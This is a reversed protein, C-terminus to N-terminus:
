EMNSSSLKILFGDQDGASEGYLNDNTHGVHYYNSDRDLFVTQGCSKKDDNKYFYKEWKMEGENTYRQMWGQCNPWKWCGGVLVDGSGDNTMTMGILNDWDETGFQRTWQHNGNKNFFTLFADGEGILKGQMDGTTWGGIFINGNQDVAINNARDRNTSGLQRVWELKGKRNIKAVMADSEGIPDIDFKGNTFGSVYINGKPGIAIGKGEEKKDTGFQCVWKQKGKSSLKVIFVDKEGYGSEGFKGKTNGTMYYNNKEDVALRSSHDAESTGIQKKWLIKGKGDLKCIFLDVSGLNKSDLTGETKGYVIVNNNHDVAVDSIADKSETGFQKIWQQKGKHNYKILYGDTEGANEGEMSGNTRGVVYINGHTDSEVDFANDKESSGFQVGFELEPSGAYLASAIMIFIVLYIYNSFRKM